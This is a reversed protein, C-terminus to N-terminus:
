PKDPQEGKATKLDVRIQELTANLKTLEDDVDSKLASIDHHLASFDRRMIDLQSRLDNLTKDLSSSEIAVKYIGALDERLQLMEQRQIYFAELLDHQSESISRRLEFFAVFMTMTITVVMVLVILLGKNYFIYEFPSKNKKPM